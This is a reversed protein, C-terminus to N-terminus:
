AVSRVDNLTELSLFLSRLSRQTYEHRLAVNISIVHQPGYAKTIATITNVSLILVLQGLMSHQYSHAKEPSKSGINKHYKQPPGSGRAGGRCRGM